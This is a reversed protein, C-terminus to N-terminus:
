PIPSDNQNSDNSWHSMSKRKQRVMNWGAKPSSIPLRKIAKNWVTHWPCRLLTQAFQKLGKYEPVKSLSCLFLIIFSVDTQSNRQHLTFILSSFGVARADSNLSVPILTSKFMSNGHCCHRTKTLNTHWNWTLRNWLIESVVEGHRNMQRNYHVSM